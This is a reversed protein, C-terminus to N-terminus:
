KNLIAVAADMDHVISIVTDVGSTKLVKEVSAQPNLLVMDGGKGSLAKCTVILTRIGLSALFSVDSLDVVVKKKEDAITGFAKDVALAGQVDMRGSVVVKTIGDQMDVVSLNVANEAM